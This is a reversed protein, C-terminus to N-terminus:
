NKVHKIIHQTKIDMNETHCITYIYNVKINVQEM